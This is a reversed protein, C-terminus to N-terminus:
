AAEAGTETHAAGVIIAIVQRLEADLLNEIAHENSEIALLPALRERMAMLAEQAQRARRFTEAEVVDRRVLQGSREAVDLQLLRTQEIKQARTAETLSMSNLDGGQLTPTAGAPIPATHEPCAAALAGTNKGSRDGGRTPDRVARVLADTSAVVVLGREDLVLRHKHGLRSVYSRSIGRLRAYAAKSCREPEGNMDFVWLLLASRSGFHVLECASDRASKQPRRVRV